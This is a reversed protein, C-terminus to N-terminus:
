DILFKKIVVLGLFIYLWDSVTILLSGTLNYVPGRRCLNIILVLSM